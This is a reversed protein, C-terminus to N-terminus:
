YFEKYIAFGCFNIAEASSCIYRLDIIGSDIMRAYKRPVRVVFIRKFTTSNAKPLMEMGRKFIFSRQTQYYTNPAPFSSTNPPVFNISWHVVKPSTITDANINFEFFISRVHSGIECETAADKAASQVGQAITVTQTTSANQVLNSWTVEHKDSKIPKLYNGRRM